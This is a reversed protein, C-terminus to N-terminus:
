NLERLNMLRKDLQDYVLLTSCALDLTLRPNKQETAREIWHHSTSVLGRKLMRGFLNDLEGENKPM